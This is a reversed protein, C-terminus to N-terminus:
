IEEVIINRDCLDEYLIYKMEVISNMKDTLLHERICNQRERGSSSLKSFEAEMRGIAYYKSLVKNRFEVNNYSLLCCCCDREILAHEIDNYTTVINKYLDLEEKTLAVTEDFEM